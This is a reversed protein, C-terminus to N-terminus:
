RSTVVPLVEGGELEKIAWVVSFSHHYYTNYLTISPRCRRRRLQPGEAGGTTDAALFARYRQKATFQLSAVSLRQAVGGVSSLHGLGSGFPVEM